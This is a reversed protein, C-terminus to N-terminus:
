EKLEDSDDPPYLEPFELDSRGIERELGVALEAATISPDSYDRVALAVDHGLKRLDSPEIWRPAYGARGYTTELTIAM